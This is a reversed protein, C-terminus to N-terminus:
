YVKPFLGQILGMKHQELLDIKNQQAMILDDVSALFAAIKQQEDLSPLYIAIKSFNKYFLYNRIGGETNRNVLKLFYSTKFYQILFNDDVKNETQFCVYLSSILINNLNGSYGISGVNIRAPNYAFTNNTIIKYLTIDYGRQKSSIDDFQESQPLFGEKNNISYVPLSNNNKNKFSVVKTIKGLDTKAWDGDNNFESFRYNPVNLGEQPFLNQMLGKKHRKLTALKDKHATILDNVSTLCAAIKHQEKLKPKPIKIESFQKFSVM